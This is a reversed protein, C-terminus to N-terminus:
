AIGCVRDGSALFPRQPPPRLRTAQRPYEVYDRRRQYLDIWRGADDPSAIPTMLRLPPNWETFLMLIKAAISGTKRNSIAPCAARACSLAGAGCSTISTALPNRASMSWPCYSSLQSAQAGVILLVM